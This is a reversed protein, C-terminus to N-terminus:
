IKLLRQLHIIILITGFVYFVIRHVLLNILRFECKHSVYRRKSNIFLVM